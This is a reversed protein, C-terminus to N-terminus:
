TKLIYLQCRQIEGDRTYIIYVRVSYINSPRSYKIGRLSTSYMSSWYPSCRACSRAAPARLPGMPPGRVGRAWIHESKRVQPGTSSRVQVPFKWSTHLLTGSGERIGSGERLVGSNNHSGVLSVCVLAPGTSLRRECTRVQRQAPGTSM